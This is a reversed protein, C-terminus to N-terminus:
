PLPPRASRIAGALGVSRAPRPRFRRGPAPEGAPRTPDRLALVDGAAIGSDVVVRGMGSAGAEGRGARLRRGPAATSSRAGTASSSRRGRCRRPRRPMEDLRAPAAGAPGAEDGASRHPRAGPHRAFYQVPSGRFRPKALADVREIRAPTARGPASEVAVTAPKGPSWGAPTPRWCSSRPRWRRRAGPDRGAAPRELRQRGGARHDRRALQAQPDPRRRAPRDSRAASLATERRTSRPEAQRVKIDLLDLETGRAARARGGSGRRAERPERALEQDIDSEIIESRSFILADKKQFQAARERARRRAIRPTAAGAQSRPSARPRSRTWTSGPRELEDEADVLQKEIASPDFRIVVDGEKVPSGDPALWGIRFPGPVGARCALESAGAGGAPEGAAPVRRVFDAREVATVARVAGAAPGGAAPVGRPPPQCVALGPGAALLRRPWSPRAGAPAEGRAEAPERRRYRDGAELGDADRGAPRQPPRPAPRVEESGLLGGLRGGATSAGAAPRPTFVAEAPVVLAAPSGSSRWRAWSACAPACASPTPATSTSRWSSWRSRIATRGREQVAGGISRVRGPLRRGSPRRPAPDRAPGRGRPRRRGRRDRGRGAARQLDPIELVSQGRWRSDGSRRRRGGATPSM